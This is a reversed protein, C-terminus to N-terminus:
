APPVSNYRRWLRPVRLPEACTACRAQKGRTSLTCWAPRTLCTRTAKRWPPMNDIFHIVRSGVLLEPASLYPIIGGIIEVQGIQQKRELFAARLDAPISVGGHHWEYM